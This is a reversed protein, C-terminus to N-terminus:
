SLSGIWSQEPNAIEIGLGLLHVFGLHSQRERGDSFKQM